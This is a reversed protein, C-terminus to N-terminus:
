KENVLKDLLNKYYGRPSTNGRLWRTITHEECGIHNAFQGQTMGNQKMYSRIASIYDM